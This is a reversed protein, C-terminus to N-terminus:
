AAYKEEVLREVLATEDLSLGGPTLELGHVERFGETIAEVARDFTPREGLVEELTTMGALPDGEKPFLLRLCERDTGLLISGHQLFAGARRRQASGVLKKGGVEIEHSGTRSFCFTPPASRDRDKLVPVMEAPAGLRRLGDVLGQGIWRYSELLDGAGEFDGSAAVVSYTVEREETDHYIASGGTPRRVVGIGLRRCAELNVHDDLPQGYGLSLTPPSWSFFRLTPPSDGRIRSLLIAEDLAMNTAGDLPETVLLRWRRESM